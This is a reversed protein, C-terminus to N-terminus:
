DDAPDYAEGAMASATSELGQMREWDAMTITVERAQSGNYVGVLGDEAM